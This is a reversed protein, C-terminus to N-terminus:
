SVLGVWLDRVLVSLETPLGNDRASEWRGALGTVQTEADEARQEAELLRQELEQMQSTLPPPSINTGLEASSLPMLTSLYVSVVLGCKVQRALHSGSILTFTTVAIRLERTGLNCLLHLTVATTMVAPCCDRTYPTM